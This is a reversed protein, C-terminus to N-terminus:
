SVCAGGFTACLNGKSSSTHKYYIGDCYGLVTESEVDQFDIIRNNEGCNSGLDLADDTYSWIAPGYKDSINGDFRSDYVMLYGGNANM